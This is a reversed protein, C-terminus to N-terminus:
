FGKGKGVYFISKIFTAWSIHHSQTSAKEPLNGTLRPDLLLYTFSTKATGERWKKNPNAFDNRAKNELEIYPTLNKM